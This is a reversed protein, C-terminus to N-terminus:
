SRDPPKQGRSRWKRPIRGRVTGRASTRAPPRAAWPHASRFRPWRPAAPIAPCAHNQNAFFEVAKDRGHALGNGRSFFGIHAFPRAFLPFRARVIQIHAGAARLAFQVRQKPQHVHHLALHVRRKRQIAGVRVHQLRGHPVRLAGRQDIGNGQFAALGLPQQRLDGGLPM